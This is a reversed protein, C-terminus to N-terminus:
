SYYDVLLAAALTLDSRFVIIHARAQSHLNEQCHHRRAVTAYVGQRSAEAYGWYALFMPLLATNANPGLRKKDPGPTSPTRRYRGMESRGNQPAGALTRAARM